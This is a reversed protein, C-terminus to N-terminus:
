SQISMCPDSADKETCVYIRMCVSKIMCASVCQYSAMYVNWPYKCTITGQNSPLKPLDQLITEENFNLKILSYEWMYRKDAKILYRGCACALRISEIAAFAVGVQHFIPSLPPPM